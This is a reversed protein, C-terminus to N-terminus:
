LEVALFMVGIYVGLAVSNEDLPSFLDSSGYVLFFM